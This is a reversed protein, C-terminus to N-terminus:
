FPEVEKDDRFDVFTNFRLSHYKKGKSKSVEQYCVVCTKHLYADQNNFIKARLDDSFGSGVRAECKTGDELISQVFIGGLTNALRTGPRGPYFGVIVADADHFRKLKTWAEHRDFVYPSYPDKLILGEYGYNDILFDCWERAETMNNVYKSPIIKIRHIVDSNDYLLKELTDRNKRMTINCSQKEWDEVPMLFIAHLMLNDKATSAGSKKANVTETFNKGYRECDLVYDYGLIGHMTRLDDDFLGELHDAYKGSRGSFYEITNERVIVITREGDLKADAIRVDPLETDDENEQVKALMISFMPVGCEPDIDKVIKNWTEISFGAKLDKCLVHEYLNKQTEETYLNLTRIVADRAANGTIERAALRGLLSFFPQVPADFAAPELRETDIKRVFFNRYPNIAEFVLERTFQDATRIANAIITRKGKGEATQCTHLFANFNALESM